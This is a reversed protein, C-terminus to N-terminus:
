ASQNEDLLKRPCAVVSQLGGPRRARCRRAQLPGPGSSGVQLGVLACPLSHLNCRAEALGQPCAGRGCRGPGGAGQHVAAWATCKGWCGQIGGASEKLGGPQPKSGGRDVELLGAQTPRRRRGICGRSAAARAARVKMKTGKPKTKKVGLPMKDEAAKGCVPLCAQCNRWTRPKTSSDMATTSPTKRARERRTDWVVASCPTLASSRRRPMRGPRCLGAQTIAQM